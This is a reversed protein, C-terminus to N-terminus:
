QFVWLMIPQKSKDIEKYLKDLFKPSVMPCGLSNCISSNTEEDGVCRYSHLVIFRDFANSNSSDLGYLKYANGFQGKYKNGVKYKGMASCGCDPTNNFRVNELFSTNCSGHAVLGKYLITDAKLDFVFFRKKNSPMQMDILFCVNINYKNNKLYPKITTAKAQLRKVQLMKEKDDKVIKKEITITTKDTFFQYCIICIAIAFIAILILNKKRM